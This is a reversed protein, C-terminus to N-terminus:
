SKKRPRGPKRKKTTKRKKPEFIPHKSEMKEVMKEVLSDDVAPFAPEQKPEPKPPEHIKEPQPIVICMSDPILAVPPVVGGAVDFEVLVRHEDPRWELRKVVPKTKEDARIVDMPRGMINVKTQLTVGWLPIPVPTPNTSDM